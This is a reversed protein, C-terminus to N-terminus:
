IRMPMVVYTYDESSGSGPRLIGQSVEDKLELVVKDTGVVALFDLLYKANFGIEVDDGTYDSNLTESAEGMEPNRSSVEAKGGKMSLKIARSRENALVSVRTLATTLTGRDFEVKKDNGKPIVKEFNPFTGELLRTAMHTRGIDFFLHNEKRCYFLDEESSAMIRAIEGLAKRPVLVREDEAPGKGEFPESVHALRFGDSAVLTITKRGLLLLAGNLAFRSDDPTVAFIVKEIMRRILSGSIRYKTTKGSTPLTPFDEKALGMIRFRSKSCTVTVWNQGDDKITVDNEPLLRVIEYLKRASVSIGGPNKVTAETRSRVSVELDTAMLELGEHDASLLVNGLIPVTNKREVVGQLVELEKQLAPQKVTLQM